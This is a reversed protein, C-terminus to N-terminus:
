IDMSEARLASCKKCKRGRFRKRFHQFILRQLTSFYFLIWSIPRLKNRLEAGLASFNELKKNTDHAPTFLLKAQPSTTTWGVLFHGQSLLIDECLRTGIGHFGSEPRARTIVLFTCLDCCEM